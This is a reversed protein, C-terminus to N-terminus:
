HQGDWHYGGSYRSSDCRSDRSKDSKLKCTDFLRLGVTHLTYKRIIGAAGIATGVAGVTM